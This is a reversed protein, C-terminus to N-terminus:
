ILGKLTKRTKNWWELDEKYKAETQDPYIPEVRLHHRGGTEDKPQVVGDRTTAMYGNAVNWMEQQLDAPTSAHAVLVATLGHIPLPNDSGPAFEDAMKVFREAMDLYFQRQKIRAVEEPDM